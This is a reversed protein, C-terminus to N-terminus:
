TPRGNAWPTWSMRPPCTATCIAMRLSSCVNLTIGWRQTTSRLKAQNSFFLRNHFFQSLNSFVLKCNMWRANKARSSLLNQVPELAVMRGDLHFAKHPFLATGTTAVDWLTSPAARLYGRYECRIREILRQELLETAATRKRKDGEIEVRLAQCEESTLRQEFEGNEGHASRKIWAERCLISESLAELERSQQWDGGHRHWDDNVDFVLGEFPLYLPVGPVLAYDLIQRPTKQWREALESVSLTPSDFM